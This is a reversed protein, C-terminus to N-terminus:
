AGTTCEAPQRQTAEQKEPKTLVVPDEKKSGVPCKASASETIGSIPCKAQDTKTKDEEKGFFYNWLWMIVRFLVVPIM